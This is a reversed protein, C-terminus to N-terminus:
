FDMLGKDEHWIAIIAFWAVAALNDIRSDEGPTNEWYQILHKLAHEYREELWKKDGSKWNDRGYREEGKKFRKAVELLSSLPLQSLGLGLKESKAGGEFETENM